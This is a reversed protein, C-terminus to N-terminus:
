IINLYILLDVFVEIQDKTTFFKAIPLFKKPLNDILSPRSNTLLPKVFKKDINRVLKFIVFRNM